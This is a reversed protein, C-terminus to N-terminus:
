LDFIDNLTITNLNIESTTDLEKREWVPIENKMRMEHLMFQYEDDIWSWDDNFQENDLLRKIQGM